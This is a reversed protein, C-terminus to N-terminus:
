REDESEEEQPKRRPQDEIPHDVINQGDRLLVDDSASDFSFFLNMKAVDAPQLEHTRRSVGDNRQRAGVTLGPNTDNSQAALVTQKNGLCNRTFRTLVIPVCM